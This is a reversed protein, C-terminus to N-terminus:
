EALIAIQELYGDRPLDCVLRLVMDSMTAAEVTSLGAAAGAPTCGIVWGLQSSSAPTSRACAASEASAAAAQKSGWAGDLPAIGGGSRAEIGESAEHRGDAGIAVLMPVSPSSRQQSALCAERPPHGLPTKALLPAAPSSDACSPHCAPWSLRPPGRLGGLPHLRRSREQQLARRLGRRSVKVGM